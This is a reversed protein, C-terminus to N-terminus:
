AAARAAHLDALCADCIYPATTPEGGPCGGCRTPCPRPARRKAVVPAPAAKRRRYEARCQHYVLLDTVTAPGDDLRARAAVGTALLADDALGAVFPAVDRMLWATELWDLHWCRRGCEAARCECHAEGTVVDRYLFNREGPRSASPASFVAIEHRIGHFTLEDATHRAATRASM